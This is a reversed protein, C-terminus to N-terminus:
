WIAYGITIGKGCCPCIIYPAFQGSLYDGGIKIDSDDYKITCRCRECTVIFNDNGGYFIM